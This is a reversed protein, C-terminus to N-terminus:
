DFENVVLDITAGKVAMTDAEPTQRLVSGESRDENYSYVVRGLKFGAEEIIKKASSLGKYILSPVKVQPAGDSVVLNVRSGSSAQEGAAPTTAVVHDKEVQESTQRTTSGVMFGASTLAQMAVSLPMKALEPVAVSTVGKSIIVRVESGSKVRSGEMPTQSLILGQEVKPDARQQSVVLMLGEPELLKRAQNPRLGTLTPVVVGNDILPKGSSMRQLVYFTAASTIVSVVVTLLIVKGTSM